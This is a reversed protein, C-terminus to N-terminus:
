SDIVEQGSASFNEAAGEYVHWPHGNWPPLTVLQYRSLDKVMQRATPEMVEANQLGHFEGFNTVQTLLIRGMYEPFDAFLLTWCFQCYFRTTNGTEFNKFAGISDEGRIIKFDNPFWISDMLQHKPGRPGGHMEHAYKVAASCDYCCCELRYLARKTNFEVKVAGCLCNISAM